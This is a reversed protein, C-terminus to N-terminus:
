NKLSKLTGANNDCAYVNNLSKYFLKYVHCYATDSVFSRLVTHKLCLWSSM